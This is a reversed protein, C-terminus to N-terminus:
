PMRAVHALLDPHKDILQQVRQGCGTEPLYACGGSLPLPVGTTKPFSLPKNHLSRVALYAFIQAEMAQSNWVVEEAMMVTCDRKEQSLAEKLAQVIVPNKWGGGVLIWTKPITKKCLSLSKVISQATFTELTACADQLSLESLEKILVMDGIDLAKPPCLTFFNRGAKILSKEFLLALIRDNVKGALGYQGDRDFHEQGQTRQRVLQDILGNGPGTDFAILDLENDNEILTLNAIGGCNVVVSNLLNDRVALAQHFLPAFPAGQGGAAIDRQRFQNIVTIGTQDALLQGDGVCISMKLSPQHFLTQGHYGIVDIQDARYGTHKLLTTVIRAHCFTSHDFIDKLCLTTPTYLYHSVDELQNKPMQLEHLCYQTLSDAFNNEAKSLNGNAQRLAFEAAKLLIKFPEDYPLFVNGLAEIQHPTGDTKLLAADIGDMSTGSMLGISLM